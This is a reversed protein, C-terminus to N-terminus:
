KRASLMLVLGVLLFLGNVGWAALEAPIRENYGASQAIRFLIFYGLAIMAGVGISAAVGGRRPNAAFPVCILVVIFSTAPFAFKIMRDVEERAYPGGVRKMVSIYHELEDLSMDEPKGLRKGLDAPKDKILDITLSDFQTFTGGGDDPNASASRDSGFTREIGGLARWSFQDYVLRQATVLRVLRDESTQYLKFDSGEQRDSNYGTLTYFVGPSVQRYLNRVSTVVSRAKNQIAFEKIELRKANAPPFIYENYYWHGGSLLLAVLAIPATIRYLSLGAAKMALIEQRRALISVAFLSALLVFMPLFSKLVWGAFYTYYEAIVIIPTKKDVFHRLMDVMNIVIIMLGCAITVVLLALMFQRLLYRDLRKM